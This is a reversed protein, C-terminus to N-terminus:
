ADTLITQVPGPAITELDQLISDTASQGLLGIISVLSILGPFIALVGYYTLAASWDTLNDARFEAVTRKLTAWWSHTSLDTPEDPARAMTRDSESRRGSAAGVAEM